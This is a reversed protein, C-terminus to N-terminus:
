KNKFDQRATMSDNDPSFIPIFSSPQNWSMIHLDEMPYGLSHKCLQFLSCPFFPATKNSTTKFTDELEKLKSFLM